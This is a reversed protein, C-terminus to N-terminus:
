IGHVYGVWNGGPDMFEYKGNILESVTLQRAFIVTPDVVEYLVYGIRVPADLAFVNFCTPVEAAFVVYIVPTTKVLTVNEPAGPAYV